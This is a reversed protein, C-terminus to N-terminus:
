VDMDNMWNDVVRFECLSAYMIEFNKNRNSHPLIKSHILGTNMDHVCNDIPKGRSNYESLYVESSHANEIIISSSQNSINM